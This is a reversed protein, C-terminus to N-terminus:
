VIKPMAAYSEGPVRATAEGSGRNAVSGETGDTTEPRSLDPNPIGLIRPSRKLLKLKDKRLAASRPLAIQSAWATTSVHYCQVSWM